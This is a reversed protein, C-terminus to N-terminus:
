IEDITMGTTDPPPKPMKGSTKRTKKPVSKSLNCLTFGKDSIKHPHHDAENIMVCYGPPKGRKELVIREYCLKCRGKTPDDKDPQFYGLGETGMHKGKYTM